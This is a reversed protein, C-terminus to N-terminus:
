LLLYKEPPKTKRILIYELAHALEIIDHQKGLCVSVGNELAENLLEKRMQAAFLILNYNHERNLNLKKLFEIGSICPMMMDIFIFDPKKTKLIELGDEAKAATLLEYQLNLNNLAISFFLLEDEEDDILLIIVSQQM